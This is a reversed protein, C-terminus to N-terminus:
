NERDKFSVVRVVLRGRDDLGYKIYATMDVDKLHVRYVDLTFDVNLPKDITKYFDALTLRKITAVIRAEDYRFYRMADAKARPRIIIQDADILREIEAKSYYPRNKKTVM